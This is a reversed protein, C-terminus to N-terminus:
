NGYFGRTTGDNIFAKFKCGSKAHFGSRIKIRGGARFQVLANEHIIYTNDSIVTTIAFVDAIEWAMIENTSINPDKQSLNLDNYSACLNRIQNKTDCIVLANYKSKTPCTAQITGIPIGNWSLNPNSFYRIRGSAKQISTDDVIIGRYSMITGYICDKVIGDVLITGYNFWKAFNYCVPPNQSSRDSEQTGPEHSCGLAHGVEHALTYQYNSM